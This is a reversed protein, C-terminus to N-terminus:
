LSWPRVASNLALLLDNALQSKAVVRIRTGVAPIRQMALLLLLSDGDASAFSMVHDRRAAVYELVYGGAVALMEGLWLPLEVKTGAKM